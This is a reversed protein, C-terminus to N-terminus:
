GSKDLRFRVFKEKGVTLEGDPKFGLRRLAGIRKRTPPLLATIHGFGM